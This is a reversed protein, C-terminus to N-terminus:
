AKPSRGVFAWSPIKWFQLAVTRSLNKRKGRWWGRMDEKEKGTSEWLCLKEKRPLCQTKIPEMEWDLVTRCPNSLRKPTLCAPLCRPTFRAERRPCLITASFNGTCLGCSDGMEQADTNPSCQFGRAKGSFAGQKRKTFDFVHGLQLLPVFYCNPLLPLILSPLVTALIWWWQFSSLIM